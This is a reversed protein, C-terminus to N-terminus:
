EGELDFKRGSPRVVPPVEPAKPKRKARQHSTRWVEYALDREEALRLTREDEYVAEFSTTVPMRVFTRQTDGFSTTEIDETWWPETDRLEETTLRVLMGGVTQVRGDGLAVGVPNDGPRAPQGDARVMTGAAIPVAVPEPPAMGSVIRAAEEFNRHAAEINTVTERALEIGAREAAQAEDYKRLDRRAMFAGFALFAAAGGAATLSVITGTDM